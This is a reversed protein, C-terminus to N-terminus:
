KKIPLLIKVFGFISGLGYGFHRCAFALPLVFFLGLNKERIAISLSFFLSAIL